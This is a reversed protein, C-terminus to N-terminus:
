VGKTDGKIMQWITLLIIQIDLWISWNEIYWIDYEIRKRTRKTNEEYDPVDGRFGHVQAWGTLGPKVWGRLKIEEVMKTYINNFAIPHPRPGVVSMEGKLINIFQPLEDLNSKRLLKGIQTVRPDGKTTPQYEDEREKRAHMTRFKYCKFIENNVGIRDQKFFVPGPSTIKNLVFILPFLWSLIFTFAFISFIIDFTRKFFRWHAEALPEDRVSIIPFSGLMSFRYKKSLFKFYDPIIHVRVANRNCVKIIDDLLDSAYIPLAIIVEEIKKQPILEDLQAITGIIEPDNSNSNDIFGLFNYGFDRQNIISENFSKGLEGAGIIVANRINKESGRIKILFYKLIQTRLSVVILLLASYFLIFNRTFLDEKTIFIFLVAALAQVAINKIINIIQYSFYRVNFDEYFNTVNSGFYWIFNLVVLLIFMYNREFLIHFPQALAAAAFFTFNLLLLDLFLRLYYVSKQNVIM